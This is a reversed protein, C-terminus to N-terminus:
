EEVKSTFVRGSNVDASNLSYNNIVGLLYGCFNIFALKTDEKM